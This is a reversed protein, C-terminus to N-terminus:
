KNIKKNNNKNIKTSIGISSRSKALSVEQKTEEIAEYIKRKHDDRRIGLVELDNLTFGMIQHPTTLGRDLFENSYQGMEIAKLWDSITDKVMSKLDSYRYINQSFFYIKKLTMEEYSLLFGIFAKHNGGFDLQM